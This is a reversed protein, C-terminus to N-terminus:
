GSAETELGAIFHRGCFDSYELKDPQVGEKRPRNCVTFETKRYQGKIIEINVM